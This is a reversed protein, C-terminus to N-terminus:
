GELLEYNYGNEKVTKIANYLRVTDTYKTANEKYSTFYLMNRRRGQEIYGVLDNKIFRIITPKCKPKFETFMKYLARMCEKDKRVKLTFNIKDGTKERQLKILYNYRDTIDRYWINEQTALFKTFKGIKTSSGGQFHGVWFDLLLGKILDEETKFKGDLGESYVWKEYWVPTVNNSHSCIDAVWCNDDQRIKLSKVIEYCM